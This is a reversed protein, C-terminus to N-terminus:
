KKQAKKRQKADWYADQIAKMVMEMDDDSVDGGAFLAAANNIVESATIKGRAGSVATADILFQENPSILYDKPVRLVEAIKEIVKKRPLREGIEYLGISRRSVGVAKSLEDQSMNHQKRLQILKDKFEM